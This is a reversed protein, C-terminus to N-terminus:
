PCVTQRELACALRAKRIGEDAQAIITQLVGDDRYAGLGVNAIEYADRYSQAAEVYRGIEHLQGGEDLLQNL